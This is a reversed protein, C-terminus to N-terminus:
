DQSAPFEQQSLSERAWAELSAMVEPPPLEGFAAGSVSFIGLMLTKMEGEVFSPVLNGNSDTAESSYSLQGDDTLSVTITLKDLNAM